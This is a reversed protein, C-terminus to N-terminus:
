GEARSPLSVTFTMGDGPMNRQASVSGGHAEAIYKVTALGLGIGGVKRTLFDAAQFFGDFIHPMAADSVGCGTDTFHFVAREPLYAAKVSIAGGKRNFKVANTLLQKFVASVMEPDCILCYPEGERSLEVKIEMEDYLFGLSKEASVLLAWLDTETKKLTVAGKLLGSFFLLEEIVLQLNKMANSSRRWVELEKEDRLQRKLLDLSAMAVTLPTRLEHNLRSLFADKARESDRLHSYASELEAKIAKVGELESKLESKSFANRVVSELHHNSFPKVIYEAAGTKLGGIATEISPDATMIVVITGPSINKIEQALGIGDGEEDINIDTLVLDFTQKRFAARAAASSSATATETVVEDLIRSCLYLMDAQDDIILVSAKIRQM